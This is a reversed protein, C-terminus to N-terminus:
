RYRLTGLAIAVVYVLAMLIILMGIDADRAILGAHEAAAYACGAVLGAGLSLAMADVMIKRQLEDVLRVYRAHAAVFGVGAVVNVVIAAWSLAEQGNWVHAPAFRAVALTGVWALMWGALPLLPRFTDRDHRHGIRPQVQV